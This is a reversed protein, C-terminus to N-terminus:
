AAVIVDANRFRVRPWAEPRTPPKRQALEREVEDLLAAIMQPRPTSDYWDLFAVCAAPQGLRQDAEFCLKGFYDEVEGVTEHGVGQWGCYGLACAAEVPWDRVIPKPPPTTTSGQAIRRDDQSLAQRLALLGGNTIAPAFGDRWVKQWTTM